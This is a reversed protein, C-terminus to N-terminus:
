ISYKDIMVVINLNILYLVTKSFMWFLDVHLMFRNCGTSVSLSIM